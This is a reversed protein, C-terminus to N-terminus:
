FYEDLTIASICDGHTRKIDVCNYKGSKGYCSDLISVRDGFFNHGIVRDTTNGHGLTAVYSGNVLISMASEDVVMISYMYQPQNSQLDFKVFSSHETPFCWNNNIMVPHWHTVILGNGDTLLESDPGIESRIILFIESKGMETQIIDGVNLNDIPCDILENDHEKKVTCQGSICMHNTM